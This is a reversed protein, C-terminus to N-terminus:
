PWLRGLPLFIGLICFRLIYYVLRRQSFIDATTSELTRQFHNSFDGAAAVSFLVNCMAHLNCLLYGFNCSDSLLYSHGPFHLFYKINEVETDNESLYVYIM